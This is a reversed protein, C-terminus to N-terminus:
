VGQQVIAFFCAITFILSFLMAGIGAVFSLESSFRKTGKYEQDLLNVLHAASYVGSGICIFTAILALITYNDM